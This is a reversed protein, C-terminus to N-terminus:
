SDPRVVLVVGGVLAVAGLVIGAIARGSRSRDRVVAVAGTVIAAVGLPLGLFCVFLAPISVLGLTLAINDYQTSQRM